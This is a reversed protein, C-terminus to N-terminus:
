LVGGVASAGAAAFFLVDGNVISFRTLEFGSFLLLGPSAPTPPLCGMGVDALLLRLGLPFLLDGEVFKLIASIM